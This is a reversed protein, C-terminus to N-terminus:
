DMKAGTRRVVDAWKRIEKRVLAEFHEPTGGVLDYGLGGLKERVAPVALATNVEANLRKVIALPVGAQVALGSWVTIEFGPVGAEAITPLEPVASSRKVSTVGLGRLRGAKVHPVISGMNDFMMHVQGSIMETVAQQGAKYPVHLLQAGTMLKFMEGSLHRSGGTGTSAFSLKGGKSWCGGSVGHGSFRAYIGAISPRSLAGRLLRRWARGL